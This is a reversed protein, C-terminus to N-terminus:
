GQPDLILINAVETTDNYITMTDGNINMVVDLLGTAPLWTNYNESGTTLDKVLVVPPNKLLGGTRSYTKSAGSPIMDSQYNAAKNNQLIMYSIPEDLENKITYGDETHSVTFYPAADIYKTVTKESFNDQVLVTVPITRLNNARTREIKGGGVLTATEASDYVQSDSDTIIIQVPEDSENLITVSSNNYAVRIIDDSRTFGRATKVLVTIPMRKDANDRNMVYTEGASLTIVEAQTPEGGGGQTGGEDDGTEVGQRVPLNAIEECLTYAKDIDQDEVAQCLEYFLGKEAATANTKNKPGIFCASAQWGELPCYVCRDRKEALENEGRLVDWAYQCAYCYFLPARKTGDKYEKGMNENKFQLAKLDDVTTEADFFTPVARGSMYNTINDRMLLWLKQHKEQNFLIAM